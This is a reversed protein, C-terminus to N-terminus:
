SLQTISLIFNITHTEVDQEKIIYKEVPLASSVNKILEQIEEEEQYFLNYSLVECKGKVINFFDVSTFIDVVKESDKNFADIIINYWKENTDQLFKYGDANVIDFTPNFRKFLKTIVPCIEVSKHKLGLKECVRAQTGLGSGIILQSGKGYILDQFCSHKGCISDDNLVSEFIAPKGEELEEDTIDYDNNLLYIVGSKLVLLQLNQHIPSNYNEITYNEGVEFINSM